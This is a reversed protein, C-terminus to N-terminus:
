SSLVKQNTPIFTHTWWYLAISMQMKRGDPSGNQCSQDFDSILFNLDKRLGKLSPGTGM